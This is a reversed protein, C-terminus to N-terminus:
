ADSTDKFEILDWRNGFPDQFVAVKGYVEDRPSEEFFVGNALMRAHDAAFDDTSLFLWVRGGGQKGIADQQQTGVAKALLFSTEAEKDPSVRVWRKGSGLDDDQLLKFGLKGVFFSIGEDYDPVLISLSSLRMNEVNWTNASQCLSLSFSFSRGEEFCILARTQFSGLFIWDSVDDDDGDM